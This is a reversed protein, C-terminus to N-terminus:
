HAYTHRLVYATLTLLIVVLLGLSALAPLLIALPAAAALTACGIWRATFRHRTTIRLYWTQTAVYLFSGGFLLATTPRSDRRASPNMQAIAHVAPPM